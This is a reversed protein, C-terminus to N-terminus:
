FVHWWMLFGDRERGRGRRQQIHTHTFHLSILLGGLPSFIGSPICVRWVVSKEEGKIIHRIKIIIRKAIYWNAYKKLWSIIYKVVFFIAAKDWIYCILFSQNLKGIELQVKEPVLQLVLRAGSGSKIEITSAIKEM